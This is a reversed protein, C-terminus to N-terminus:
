DKICRISAGAKETFHNYYGFLNPSNIESRDYRLNRFAYPTTNFSIWFENNINYFDGQNSRYGGPLVNFGIDNTAGTNPSEWLGTGAQITGTSKMIGGAVAYGGLFNSLSNWEAYSAVHWGTPALVKNPTSPDTDHIGAVAYWNYLKGYIAGNAPDNNYYCWAGTTLAAWAVPDTVQPIPTGDRYTTVDLNKSTWVQTGITVGPLSAAFGPSGFSITSTVKPITITITQTTTTACQGATPTFTYTTSTTSNFAPAWTGTIGNLSTTLLPNISSGTCTSPISAFTPTVQSIISVIVAIRTSECGNVTQSVYYTGSVLATTSSLATGGTSSLYWQLSTGTAVLDAVTASACFTQSQAVPLATPVLNIIATVPLSVCGDISTEITQITYTGSPVNSWDITIANTGNSTIVASPASPSISWVYTSGNHTADGLNVNYSQISQTCLNQVPTPLPSTTFSYPGVWNSYFAYNPDYPYFCKARVYYNYATGATLGSIVYPLNGAYATGLGSPTDNSTLVEIEWSLTTSYNTDVWSLNASTQTINNATLSNPDSCGPPPPPVRLQITNSKLVTGNNNVKLLTTITDTFSIQSTLKPTTITIIQATNTACQGANPTFTYTTTITNNL